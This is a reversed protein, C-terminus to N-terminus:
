KNYLKYRIHESNSNDGQAQTISGHFSFVFRSHILWVYAVRVLPFFRVITAAL